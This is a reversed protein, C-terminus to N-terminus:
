LAFFMPYWVFDSADDSLFNNSLDLALKERRTRL